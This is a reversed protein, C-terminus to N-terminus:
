ELSKCLSCFWPCICVIVCQSDKNILWYKGNQQTYPTNKHPECPCHPPEQLVMAVADLGHDEGHWFGPLNTHGRLAKRFEFELLTQNRNWVTLPIWLNTTETRHTNRLPNGQASLESQDFDGAPFQNFWPPLQDSVTVLSKAKVHFLARSLITKWKELCRVMFRRLHSSESGALIAFCFLYQSPWCSAWHILSSVGVSRVFADDITYIILYLEKCTANPKWVRDFLTLCPLWLPLLRLFLFSFTLWPQRSTINSDHYRANSQTPFYLANRNDSEWGEHDAQAFRESQDKNIADNETARWDSTLPCNAGDLPWNTNCDGSLM